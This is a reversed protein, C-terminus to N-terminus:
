DSSFNLLDRLNFRRSKKQSLVNNLAMNIKVSSNQSTGTSSTRTFWKSTKWKLDLLLSNPDWGSSAELMPGAMWTHATLSSLMDRLLKSFTGLKMTLAVKILILLQFQNEKPLTEPFDGPKNLTSPALKPSCTMVILIAGALHLCHNWIVELAREVSLTIM